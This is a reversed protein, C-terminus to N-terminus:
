MKYKGTIAQPKDYRSNTPNMTGEIVIWPAGAEDTAPYIHLEDLTFDSEWFNNSVDAFLRDIAKKVHTKKM